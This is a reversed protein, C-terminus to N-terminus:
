KKYRYIKNYFYIMSMDVSFNWFKKKEKESINDFWNWFAAKFEANNPDYNSMNSDIM